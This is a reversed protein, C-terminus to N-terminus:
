KKESKETAHRMTPRAERAAVDRSAEAAERRERATFPKAKGDDDVEIPATAGTAPDTIVLGVDAVEGQSPDVPRAEPAHIMQRHADLALQEEESLDPPIGAQPHSGVHFRRTNSDQALLGDEIRNEDAM